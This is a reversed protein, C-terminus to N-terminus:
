VNNGKRREIQNEEFCRILQRRSEEDLVCNPRRPIGADYGKYQLLAKVGAFLNVSCLERTIENAKCQVRYASQLDKQELFSLIKKYHGLYCNFTTGIAGDANMAMAALFCEDKGSIVQKKTREHLQQMEYYDYSTFKISVINERGEMIETLQSADLHNGTNSPIYYIMLPIKVSDALEWYYEKLAKFGYSFYFPPVSSIMSAGAREAHRALDASLRTGMAGVHAIVPAGDAASIVAELAKMREEGTMLFCEASSGCAYIGDAGEALLGKTLKKLAEYDVAEDQRFPTVIPVYLKKM